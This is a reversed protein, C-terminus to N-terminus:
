RTYMFNADFWSKGDWRLNRISGDTRMFNSSRRHLWGPGYQSFMSEKSSDTYKGQFLYTAGTYATIDLVNTYSSEGMIVCNNRIERTSRNVYATSSSDPWRVWGGEHQSTSAQRCTPVYMATYRDSTKGGGVWCKSLQPKDPLSPCFFIGKPQHFKVYCYPYVWPGTTSVTYDAPKLSKYYPLLYYAYTKRSSTAPMWDNHDMTYFSILRFVEKMNNVCSIQRAKQKASNLAPLLIGALIAIIAVVVLLEILTFFREWISHGTRHSYKM